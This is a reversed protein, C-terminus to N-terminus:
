NLSLQTINTVFMLLDENLSYLLICTFGYSKIKYYYSFSISHICSFGEEAAYRVETMRGEDAKAKQLKQKQELVTYLQQRWDHEPIKPTSHDLCESPQFQDPSIVSSDEMKGEIASKALYLEDNRITTRKFYPQKNTVAGKLMNSTNNLDYPLSNANQLLQAPVTNTRGPHSEVDSAYGGAGRGGRHSRHSSNAGRDSAYGDSRRSYNIEVSKDGSLSSARASGGMDSSYGGRDSRNLRNSYHNSPGNRGGSAPGIDSSYGSQAMQRRRSSDRNSSYEVESDYERQHRSDHISHPSNHYQKRQSYNPDQALLYTKKRHPVIKEAGISLPDEVFYSYLM